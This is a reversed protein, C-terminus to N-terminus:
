NIKVFNGCDSIISTGTKSNSSICHWVDDAIEEPNVAEKLPLRSVFEETAAKSLGSVFGPCVSNVLVEPALDLALAQTIGYLGYKTATYFSTGKYARGKPVIGDIVNVIRGWGRQQMQLGLIGGLFLSSKMHINLYKDFNQSFNADLADPLEIKEIISANYVLIDIPGLSDVLKQCAAFDTLDCQFSEYQPPPEHRHYTTFIHIGEKALRDCILKGILSSGGTVLANHKM